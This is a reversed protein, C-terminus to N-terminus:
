RPPAETPRRPSLREADEPALGKSPDVQPRGRERRWASFAATMMALWAAGLVYGALVDSLFHVGLAIRSFGILLVMLVAGTVAIRRWVGHLVPLFVLLLVGYGVVASQAHGSPFSFGGTHAVPDPLVPRARDVLNKVQGNLLSSLLPAVAVFAALRPLRRWLLWLGVVTFIAMWVPRSSSFSVLKALTVFTPHDVAYSHLWDRPGEDLRRLGASNGEVLLVLLLFPVTVLVFAVALLLTRIGFRRGPENSRPLAPAM